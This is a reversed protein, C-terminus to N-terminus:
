SIADKGYTELMSLLGEYEATKRYETVWKAEEQGIPQGTESRAIL